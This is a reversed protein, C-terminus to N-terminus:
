FTPAAGHSVSAVTTLWLIAIMALMVAFHVATPGHQAVLFRQVKLTLGKM